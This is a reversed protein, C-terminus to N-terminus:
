AALQGAQRRALLEPFPRWFRTAAEGYLASAMTLAGLRVTDAVRAPDTTFRPILRSAEPVAVQRVLGSPAPRALAAAAPDPAPGAAELAAAAPDPAPGAGELAAAARNYRASCTQLLPALGPHARALMREALRDQSRSRYGAARTRLVLVHSAGERLATAFPIPELLGGDAMPEGRYARPAGTLLPISCSARAAGLLDETDAFDRLVRLGADAASVAVARVEPGAALGAESLPRRRAIVEGFLFDLDVVPGGRFARAPDVFAKSACDEFSTAWRSVQGAAAFAGTLAGSSCGYVRDISPMLGAAELVLCMGAAVAGRMGGGEVVLAVVHPDSRRRPQSGAEARALLLGFLPDGAAATAPPLCPRM